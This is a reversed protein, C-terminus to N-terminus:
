KTSYNFIIKVLTGFDLRVINSNKNNANANAYLNRIGKYNESKNSIIRYALKPYGITTSFVLIEAALDAFGCNILPLDKLKNLLNYLNIGLVNESNKCSELFSEFTKNIKEIENGIELFCKNEAFPVSSLRWFLWWCFIKNRNKFKLFFVFLWIYLHLQIYEENKAVSDGITSKVINKVMDNLVKLFRSSNDSM